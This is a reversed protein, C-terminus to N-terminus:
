YIKWDGPRAMRVWETVLSSSVSLSTPAQITLRIGRQVPHFQPVQHLQPQVPKLYVIVQPSIMNARPYFDFTNMESNMSTFVAFCEDFCLHNVTCFLNTGTMPSASVSIYIHKM